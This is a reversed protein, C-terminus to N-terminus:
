ERHQTIIEYGPEANRRAANEADEYSLFREAEEFSPTMGVDGDEGPCLYQEGTKVFYVTTM